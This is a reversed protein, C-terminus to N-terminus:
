DFIENYKTWRSFKRRCEGRLLFDGWIDKDRKVRSLIKRPARPTYFDYSRGPQRNDIPKAYNVLSVANAQLLVPSSRPPPQRNARVCEPVCVLAHMEHRRRRRPICGLFPSRPLPPSPMRRDTWYTGIHRWTNDIGPGYGQQRRAQGRALRHTCNAQAWSHSIFGTDEEEEEEERDEGKRQRSVNNWALKVM